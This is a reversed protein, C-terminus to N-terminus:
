ESVRGVEVRVADYFGAVEHLRNRCQVAAARDRAWLDALRAESITDQGATAETISVPRPCTSLAEPLEPLTVAM